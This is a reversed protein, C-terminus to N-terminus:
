LSLNVFFLFIITWNLDPSQFNSIIPFPILSVLSLLSLMILPVCVWHIKKNIPNQHSKGYDEIWQYITREM